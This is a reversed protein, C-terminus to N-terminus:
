EANDRAKAFAPDKAILRIMPDNRLAILLLGFIAESNSVGWKTSVQEIQSKVDETARFAMIETKSKKM